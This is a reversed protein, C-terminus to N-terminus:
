TKQVVSRSVIRYLLASLVAAFFCWVSTFAYSYVAWALLASGLMAGGFWRLAKSSSVMFSGTTVLVYLVTMGLLHPATIDYSIRACGTSVTLTNRMLLSLLYGSVIIGITLLIELAQRKRADRESWWVSLPVWVPWLLFAFFLFGYAYWHSALSPQVSLWQLGEFAQQLGFFLPIMALPKHRRDAKRITAIGVASLVGSTVFSVPASFCM